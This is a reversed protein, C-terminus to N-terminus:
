GLPISARCRHLLRSSGGFFRKLLFFIILIERMAHKEERTRALIEAEKVKGSQHLRIEEDLVARLEDQARQIEAYLKKGQESQVLPVLQQATDRFERQGDRDRELVKEQGSVLFGRTGSSEKFVSEMLLMSLDKETVKRAVEDAAGDLKVIARFGTLGSLILVFLLTGFGIFLNMRVTLKNM